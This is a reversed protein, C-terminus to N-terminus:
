LQPYMGLFILLFGITNNVGHAIILMWLNRGSFLYLGSMVMGFVTTELLGTAGQYLHTFGFFASSILVSVVVSLKTNGILDSIRNFIYGRYILEEGFAGFTWSVALWLVLNAISGQIESFQSLDLNTNTLRYLIPTLVFLSFIQYAAGILTGFLLTRGWDAPRKLGVGSWGIRRIWVSFWGILLFYISHNKVSFVVFATLFLIELFIFIRNEQLARGFRDRMSLVTQKGMSINYLSSLCFEIPLGTRSFQM